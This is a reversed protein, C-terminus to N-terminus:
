TQLPERPFLPEARRLPSPTIPALSEEPQADSFLWGQGYRWGCRRLYDAQEPTEIGEAITIMKLERAMAGLARSVRGAAPDDPIGQTFSMDLKVGNVPLDRLYSLPSVGTGFDDLLIPIGASRLTTLEHRIRTNPDVLSSETLEVVLRSPAIHYRAIDALLRAAFEGDGLQDASVNVSVWRTQDACRALYEIATGVARTGLPVALGREEAVGLFVEPLLIGRTPHRWRVLAEHGAIAGTTLDVIPQYFLVVEGSELAEALETELGTWAGGLEMMSSDFVETRGRGGAKARYLADDAAALLMPAGGGMLEADALAIGISARVPVRRRSLRVPEKLGTHISAAVEFVMRASEVDHLVVVFEDGGLRAVTGRGAAAARLIGAFHVLVLDGSAHGYRDNIGKFGDLDCVLVAVRDVSGPQELASQLVEQLLTRNALGTLPDHMARHALMEAHLRSETTDRVQAVFHDPEGSPKRVLAVDLMAWVVQGDARLYRNEISFRQEAGTLLSHVKLHVAYRDEPHLLQGFDFGRLAAPSTGVLEAFANNVEILHWDVGVLLFGIPANEMAVRFQMESRALAAQVERPETMDAFTTLIVQGGDHASTVIRSDVHVWRALVAAQGPRSIGVLEASVAHQAAGVRTVRNVLVHMPNLSKGTEDVLLIGLQQVTRGIADAPALELMQAAAANLSLVVGAPSLMLVGDRTMEMVADLRRRTERGLSRSVSLLRQARRLIAVLIVLLSMTLGTVAIFVVPGSSTLSRIADM